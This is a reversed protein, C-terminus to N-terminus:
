ALCKWQSSLHKAQINNNNKHKQDTKQHTNEQNQGNRQISHRMVYIHSAEVNYLASKMRSIRNRETGTKRGNRNQEPIEVYKITFGYHWHDYRQSVIM